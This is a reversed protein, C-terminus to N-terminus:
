FYLILQSALSEKVRSRVGTLAIKTKAVFVSLTAITFSCQIKPNHLGNVMCPGGPYSMVLSFKIDLSHGWFDGM